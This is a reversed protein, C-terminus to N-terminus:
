QVIGALCTSLLSGKLFKSQKLFGDYSEGIGATDGRLYAKQGESLTKNEVLAHPIDRALQAGQKLIESHESLDEAKEVFEKVQGNLAEPSVTKLPNDVDPRNVKPTAIAENGGPVRDV